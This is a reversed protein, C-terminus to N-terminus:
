LPNPKLETTKIPLPKFNSIKSKGGGFFFLGTQYEPPLQIYALVSMDSTNFLKPHSHHNKKVAM